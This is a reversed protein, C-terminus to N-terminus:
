QVIFGFVPIDLEFFGIAQAPVDPKGDSSALPPDTCLSLPLVGISSEGSRTLGDEGVHISVPAIITARVAAEIPLSAIVISQKIFFSLERFTCYQDVLRRAVCYAHPHSLLVNRIFLFDVRDVIFGRRKRRSSFPIMVSFIAGLVVRSSATNKSDYDQMYRSIVAEMSRLLSCKEDLWRSQELICTFM